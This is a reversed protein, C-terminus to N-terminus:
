RGVDASQVVPPEGPDPVSFTSEDYAPQRNLKWLQNPQMWHPFVQCGSLNTAAALVALATLFRAHRMAIDDKLSDAFPRV